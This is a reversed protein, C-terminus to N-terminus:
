SLEGTEININQDPYKEKLKNLLETEQNQMKEYTSVNNDIETNLEKLSKQFIERQLSLEGINHVLVIFENRLKTVETLEEETIKTAKIM